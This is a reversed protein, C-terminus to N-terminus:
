RAPLPLRPDAQATRKWPSARHSLAVIGNDTVLSGVLNQPIEVYSEGLPQRGLNKPSLITIWRKKKVTAKKRAM